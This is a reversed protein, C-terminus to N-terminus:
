GGARVYTQKLAENITMTAEEKLNVAQINLEEM